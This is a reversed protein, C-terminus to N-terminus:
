LEKLPTLHGSRAFFHSGCGLFGFSKDDRIIWLIRVHYLLAPSLGGEHPVDYGTTRAVVCLSHTDRYTYINM